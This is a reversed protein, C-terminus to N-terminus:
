KNAKKKASKEVKEEVAEAAKEVAEGAEEVAEGAEEVAGEVAEEIQEEQNKKYAVALLIEAILGFVYALPNVNIRGVGAFIAIELLLVVVLVALIIIDRKKM